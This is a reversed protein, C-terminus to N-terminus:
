AIKLRRNRYKVQFAMKLRDLFEKEKEKEKLDRYEIKRAHSYAEGQSVGGKRYIKQQKGQSKTTSETYLIQEDLEETQFMGLKRKLNEIRKKAKERLIGINNQIDTFKIIKNKVNEIADAIKTGFIRRHWYKEVTQFNIIKKEQRTRYFAQKDTANYLEKQIKIQRNRSSFREKYKELEVIEFFFDKKDTVRMEFGLKALNNYLKKRYYVGYGKINNLLRKEINLSRLKGTETDNYINMLLVHTHLQMDLNRNSYHDIFYYNLKEKQINQREGKVRININGDQLIKDLTEQIAQHHARLIKERHEKLAAFAISVTKQVSFTMDMALRKKKRKSKGTIMAVIEQINHKSALEGFRKVVDSYYELNSDYYHIMRKDNTLFTQVIMDMIFVQLFFLLFCFICFFYEYLVHFFHTQLAGGYFHKASKSASKKMDGKRGTNGKWRM